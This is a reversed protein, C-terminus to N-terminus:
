KTENAELLLERRRGEPDYPPSINFTQTTPPSADEDLTFKIRYRDAADQRMLLANYRIRFRCTTEAFRKQFTPFEKSGIQEYAAMVTLMDSWDEESSGFSNKTGPLTKEQIVIRNRLKGSEM